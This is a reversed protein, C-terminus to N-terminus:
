SFFLKCSNSAKPKNYSDKLENEKVSTAKTNDTTKNKPTKRDIRNLLFLIGLLFIMIFFNIEVKYKAIVAFVPSLLWIIGFGVFIVITIIVVSCGNMNPQGYYEEKM